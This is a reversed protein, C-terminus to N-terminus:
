VTLHVIVDVFAPIFIHELKCLTIGIYKEMQELVNIDLTRSCLKKFYNSLDVLPELVMEDLVGRFAPLLLDQMFVNYDHSKRGLMRGDDLTM